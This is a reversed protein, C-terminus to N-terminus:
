PDLILDSLLRANHYKHNARRRNLEIIANRLLHNIAAHKVYSMYWITLWVFYALAMVFRSAAGAWLNAISIFALLVSIGLVPIGVTVQVFSATNECRKAVAELDSETWHHDIFYAICRAEHQEAFRRIRVINAGEMVAGSVALIFFFSIIGVLFLGWWPWLRVFFLASFILVTVALSGVIMVIAQPRTFIKDDVYSYAAYYPNLHVITHAQKRQSRSRSARPEQRVRYQFKIGFRSM